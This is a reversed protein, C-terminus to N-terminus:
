AIYLLRKVSSPIFLYQEGSKKILGQSEMLGGWETLLSGIAQLFLSHLISSPLHGRRLHLSFPFVCLLHSVTYQSHLFSVIFSEVIVRLSDLLSSLCLIFVPM